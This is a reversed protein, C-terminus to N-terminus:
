LQRLQPIAVVHLRDEHGIGTLNRIISKQQGFGDHIAVKRSMTNLCTEGHQVSYQGDTCSTSAVDGDRDDYSYNM